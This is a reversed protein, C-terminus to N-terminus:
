HESSPTIVLKGGGLLTTREGTGPHFTDGVAIQPPMLRNVLLTKGNVWRTKQGNSRLIEGNITQSTMNSSANPLFGPNLQRQHNLLTRQESTLFLRGLSAPQALAPPINLTMVLWAMLMPNLQFRRMFYSLLSIAKRDPPPPDAM